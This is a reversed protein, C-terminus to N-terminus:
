AKTGNVKSTSVHGEHSNQRVTSYKMKNLTWNKNKGKPAREVLRRERKISGGLSWKAMKKVLAKQLICM